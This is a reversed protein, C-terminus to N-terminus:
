KKRRRYDIPASLVAARKLLRAREKRRKQEGRGRSRERERERERWKEREGAPMCESLM